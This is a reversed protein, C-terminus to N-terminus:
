LFNAITHCVPPDYYEEEEPEKVIKLKCGKGKGKSWTGVSSAVKEVVPEKVELPTGLEQIIDAMNLLTTHHKELTSSKIGALELSWDSLDEYALM